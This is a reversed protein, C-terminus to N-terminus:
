KQQHFLEFLLSTNGKKQKLIEFLFTPEVSKLDVQKLNELPIRSILNVSLTKKQLLTTIQTPTLQALRADTDLSFFKEIHWASCPMFDFDQLIEKFRELPIQTSISEPLKNASLLKKVDDNSLLKFREGAYLATVQESDYIKSVDLGDKVLDIIASCSSENLGGILYIIQLIQVKNFPTKKDKFFHNLKAAAISGKSFDFDNLRYEHIKDLEGLNKFCSHDAVFQYIQEASFDNIRDAKLFVECISQKYYAFDKGLDLNKLLDKNILLYDKETIGTDGSYSTGIKNWKKIQDITFKEFYSPEHTRMLSVIKKGYWKDLDEFDIKSIDEEMWQLEKKSGCFLIKRDILLKKFKAEKIENLAADLSQKYIDSTTDTKHKERWATLNDKNPYFIKGSVHTPNDKDVTVIKLLELVFLLLGPQYCVMSENNRDNVEYGTTFEMESWFFGQRVTYFNPASM